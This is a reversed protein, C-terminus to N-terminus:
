IRVYRCFLLNNLVNCKENCFTASSIEMYHAINLKEFINPNDVRLENLEKASFSVQFEKESLNTNVFYVDLNLSMCIYDLWKPPLAKPLFPNM